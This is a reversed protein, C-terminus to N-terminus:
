LDAASIGRAARTASAKSKTAGAMIAAGTVVQQGKILQHIQDDTLLHVLEEYQMLNRHIAALHTPLQPDNRLLQQELDAIKQFTDDIVQQNGNSM